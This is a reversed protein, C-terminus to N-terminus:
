TAPRGLQGFFQATLFHNCQEAIVSRMLLELPLELGVCVQLSQSKALKVGVKQDALQHSHGHVQQAQNALWCLKFSGTSGTHWWATCLRMLVTICSSIHLAARM